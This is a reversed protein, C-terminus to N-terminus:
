PVYTKEQKLKNHIAASMNAVAWLGTEESQHHRKAHVNEHEIM